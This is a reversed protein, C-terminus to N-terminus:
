FATEVCPNCKACRRFLVASVYEVHGATLAQRVGAGSAFCVAVIPVPSVDFQIFEGIDGFGLRAAKNFIPPLM